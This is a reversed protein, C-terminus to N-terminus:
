GPLPSRRPSSPTHPPRQEPKSRWASGFISHGRGPEPAWIAGLVGVASAPGQVTGDDGSAAGRSYWNGWYYGNAGGTGGYCRWPVLRGGTADTGRWGVSIGWLLGLGGFVMLGGAVGIGGLAGRLGQQVQRDNGRHLAPKPHEPSGLTLARLGGTGGQEAAGACGGNADGRGAGQGAKFKAM